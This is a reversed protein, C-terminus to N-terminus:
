PNHFYHCETQKGRRSFLSANNGVTILLFNRKPFFHGKQLVKNLGTSKTVIIGVHLDHHMRLAYCMGSRAMIHFYVVGLANNEYFVVTNHTNNQKYWLLKCLMVIDVKNIFSM